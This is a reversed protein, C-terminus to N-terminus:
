FKTRAVDPMYNVYTISTHQTDLHSSLAGNRPMCWSESSEPTTNPNPIPKSMIVVEQTIVAPSVARSRFTYGPKGHVVRHLERICPSDCKKEKFTEISEETVWLEYDQMVSSISVILLSSSGNGGLLAVLRLHTRVVWRETRKMFSSLGAKRRTRQGRSRLGGALMLINSWCHEAGETEM